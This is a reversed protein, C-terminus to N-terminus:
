VDVRLRATVVSKIRDLAERSFAPQRGLESLAINLDQVHSDEGTGM